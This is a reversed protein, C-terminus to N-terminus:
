LHMVFTDMCVPVGSQVSRALATERYLGPRANVYSSSFWLSLSLNKPLNAARRLALSLNKVHPM